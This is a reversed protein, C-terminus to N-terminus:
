RSILKVEKRHEPHMVSEHDGHFALSRDPLMMPCGLARLKMTMQYGVGSSKDPSYFWSDPVPEIEFSELTRRNTIFAGDVYDCQKWHRGALAFDEQLEKWKGWRYREGCNLLNLAFLNDKWGQLAITSIADLDINSVDDPLFVFYDHHTGLAIQQAVLWKKWFGRKGEHVTTIFNIHSGLPKDCGVWKSGDDVVMISLDDLEQILGRLMQEREYTFVVFLVSGMALLICRLDNRWHNNVRM